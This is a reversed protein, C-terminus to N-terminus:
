TITVFIKEKKEVVRIKKMLAAYALKSGAIVNVGRKQGVLICGETHAATNGSHIRVGEFNPVRLLLPMYQKFRNSFNVILEYRGKPIATRGWQKAEREVDELTFCEFVGDINMEGITSETTKSLRIITIEM